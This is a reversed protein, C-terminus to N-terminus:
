PVTELKLDPVEIKLRAQMAPTASATGDAGVRLVAEVRLKKAMARWERGAIFIPKSLADSKMGAGPGPAILATVAQTADAPV